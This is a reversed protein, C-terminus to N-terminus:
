LIPFDLFTFIMGNLLTLYDVPIKNSQYSFVQGKVEAHIEAFVDENVWEHNISITTSGEQIRTHINQYGLYSTIAESETISFNQSISRNRIILSFKTIKFLQNYSFDSTFTLLLRANANEFTSSFNHLRPLSVM